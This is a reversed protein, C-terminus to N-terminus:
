RPWREGGLIAARDDTLARRTANYVTDALAVLGIYGIAAAAITQAIYRGLRTM